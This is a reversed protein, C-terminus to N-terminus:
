AGEKKGTPLKYTGPCWKGANNHDVFRRRKGRGTTMVSQGCMPCVRERMWARSSRTSRDDHVEGFLAVEDM